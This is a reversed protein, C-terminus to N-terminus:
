RTGNRQNQNTRIVDVLDQLNRDMNKIGEEIRGLQIAQQNSEVQLRELQVVTREIDRRNTNIDSNMQSAIWGFSLIQLLLTFILALPVRRDLHWSEPQNQTLM